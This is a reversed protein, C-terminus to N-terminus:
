RGIRKSQKGKLAIIFSEILPKELLILEQIYSIIHSKNIEIPNKNYKMALIFINEAKRKIVLYNQYLVCDGLQIFILDALLLKHDRLTRFAKMDFTGISNQLYTIFDRYANIGLSTKKTEDPYIFTELSAIVKNLNTDPLVANKVKFVFNNIKWKETRHHFSQWLTEQPIIEAKYRHEENYGIIHFHTKDYGFVLVDYTLYTQQYACRHPLYYGEVTLYVYYNKDIKKKITKIFKNQSVGQLLLWHSEFCEWYIFFPMYFDLMNEESESILQLANEYNWNAANKCCAYLVSNSYATNNFTSLVPEADLPLTKTEKM